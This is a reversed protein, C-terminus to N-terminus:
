IGIHSICKGATKRGMPPTSLVYRIEFTLAERYEAELVASLKRLLVSFRKQQLFIYLLRNKHLALRPLGISQMVCM